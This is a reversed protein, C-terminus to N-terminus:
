KRSIYIFVLFDLLFTSALILTFSHLKIKCVTVLEYHRLLCPLALSFQASIMEIMADYTTLRSAILIKRKQFFCCFPILM